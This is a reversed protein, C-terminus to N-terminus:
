NDLKILGERIAYKILDALSHINLKEAIRARYTEVTKVSINLETAIQKMNQGEALRTLVQIEQTSLLSSTVSKTKQLIDIYDYVVVDTLNPSIYKGNKSVTEIAEELEEFACDKLLYGSAGARLMDTVFRKDSYMSLAIIKVSPSSKLIERTADIGTMDPLSIDMIIIDPSLEGALRLAQSGDEAEGVVTNNMQTDLLARLGDRLIKHDDVLLIRNNM